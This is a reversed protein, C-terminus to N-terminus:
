MADCGFFLSRLLGSHSGPIQCPDIIKGRNCSCQNVVPVFRLKFDYCMRLFQTGIHTQAGLNTLVSSVKHNM